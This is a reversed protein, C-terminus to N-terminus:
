YCYGYRGECLDFDVVHGEVIGLAYTYRLGMCALLDATLVSSDPTRIGGVSGANKDAPMQSFVLYTGKRPRVFMRKTYPFINLHM